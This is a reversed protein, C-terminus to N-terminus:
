ASILISCFYVFADSDVVDEEHDYDQTREYSEDLVEHVNDLLRAEYLKDFLTQDIKIEGNRCYCENGVYFYSPM